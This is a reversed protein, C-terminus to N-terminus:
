NARNAKALKRVRRSWALATGVGLLPLPGPVSAVPGPGPGSGSEFIKVGDLLLFPPLSGGGSLARGFAEFSLSSSSSSATFTKTYTQWATFGQSPNTWPGVDFTTGDLGVIWKQTTAGTQGTEQAGAYEFSLIYDRGPTLGTILQSIRSAGYDGDMGMFNGGDPSGTFGNSVPGGSGNYDPGWLFINTNGPSFKSPFGGGQNPYTSGSTLNDADQNIVFAFGGSGADSVITRTWDPLTVVEVLQGIGGTSTPYTSTNNPTSNEFSGNQVLNTVAKASPIALAGL